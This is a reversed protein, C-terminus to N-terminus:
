DAIVELAGVAFEPQNGEDIDQTVVKSVRGSGVATIEEKAGGQTSSIEFDDDTKNIVFWVNGELGGSVTPLADGEVTEFMVKDGNVYGHTPAVIKDGATDDATFPRSDLTSMLGYYDPNTAGTSRSIGWYLATQTAGNDTREPFTIKAANSIRNGSISWGSATADRPVTQELYGTYTLITGGGAEGPNDSYLNIKLTGDTASAPLGSADGVNAIAVNQFYHKLDDAEM